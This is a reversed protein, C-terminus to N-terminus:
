DRCVLTAHCSHDLNHYQLESRFLMSLQMVFLRVENELEASLKVKASGPRHNQYVGPHVIVDHIEDFITEGENRVITPLFAPKDRRCPPRAALVGLLLRLILDTNFGVLRIDQETLSGNAVKRDLHELHSDM